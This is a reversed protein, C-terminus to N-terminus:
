RSTSTAWPAESASVDGTWYWTLGATLFVVGLSMATKQVVSDVTMREGAPAQVGSDAYGTPAQGYGDYGAGNGPYTANGYTNAGQSATGNFADSRRFVPNNSQM